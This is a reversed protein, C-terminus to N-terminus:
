NARNMTQTWAPLVTMNQVPMKALLERADPELAESIHLITAIKRRIEHRMEYSKRSPELCVARFASFVPLIENINEETYDLAVFLTYRKAVVAKPLKSRDNLLEEFDKVAQLLTRLTSLIDDCEAVGLRRNSEILYLQDVLRGRAECVSALHSRVLHQFNDLAFLNYHQNDFYEM